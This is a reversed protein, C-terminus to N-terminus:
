PKTVGRWLEQRNLGEEILMLAAEKVFVQQMNAYAELARYLKAPVEMAMIQPAEEKMIEEALEKISINQFQTARQELKRFQAGTFNLKESYKAIDLDRLMKISPTEVPIETPTNIDTKNSETSPEPLKKKKKRLYKKLKKSAKREKERIKKAMKQVKEAEEVPLTVAITKVQKKSKEALKDIDAEPNSEFMDTFRRATWDTLKHSIIARALKEQTEFNYKGILALADPSMKRLFGIDGKISPSLHNVDNFWKKITTSKLGLEEAVQNLSLNYKEVHAKIGDVKEVLNLDKRKMNELLRLRSADEDTINERIIAPLKPINGIIAARVRREGAIIEFKKGKPRVVIPEILGDRSLSKSLSKLANDYIEGRPNGSMFELDEISVQKFDIKETTMEIDGRRRLKSGCVFQKM